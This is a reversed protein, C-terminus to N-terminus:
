ENRELSRGNRGHNSRRRSKDRDRGGEEEEEEPEDQPVNLLNAFYETWKENLQEPETIFEGNDDVINSNRNRPNRFSKSLEYILKKNRTFDEKLEEALDKWSKEKLTRKLRDVNRREIVYELRTEPTKHRLWRRLSKTKKKVALRM